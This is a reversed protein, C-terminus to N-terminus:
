GRVIQFLYSEGAVLPLEAIDVLANYYTAGEFEFTVTDEGNVDVLGKTTTDTTFVAIKEKNEADPELSAIKNLVVSEGQTFDAKFEGTYHEDTLLDLMTPDKKEPGSLPIEWTTASSKLKVVVKIEGEPAEETATPAANEAPKEAEAGCAAFSLLLALALILAILKTHKM